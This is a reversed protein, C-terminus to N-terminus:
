NREYHEKAILEKLQFITQEPSDLEVEQEFIAYVIREILEDM